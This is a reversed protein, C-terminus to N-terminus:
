ALSARRDKPRITPLIEHSREVALFLLRLHPPTHLELPQFHEWVAVKSKGVIDFRFPM